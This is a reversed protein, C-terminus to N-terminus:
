LVTQLQFETTGTNSSTDDPGNIEWGEIRESDLKESVATGLGLFNICESM